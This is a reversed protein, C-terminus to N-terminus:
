FFSSLFHVVFVVRTRGSRLVAARFRDARSHPPIDVSPVTSGTVYLVTATALAGINKAPSLFVARDGVRNFKAAVAVTVM